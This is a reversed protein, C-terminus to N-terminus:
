YSSLRFVQTNSSTNLSQQKIDTGSASGATLYLQSAVNKLRYNGASGAYSIEWRQSTAATDSSYIRMTTGATNNPAALYLGSWTSKLRYINTTGSVLEIVWRQALGGSDLTRSRVASSSVNSSTHM